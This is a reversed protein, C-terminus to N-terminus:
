MPTEFMVRWDFMVAAVGPPEVIVDALVVFCNAVLAFVLSTCDMSVCITGVPVVAVATSTPATSKVRECTMRNRLVDVSALMTTTTMPVMPAVSRMRPMIRAPQM